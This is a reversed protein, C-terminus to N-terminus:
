FEEVQFSNRRRRLFSSSIFKSEQSFFLFREERKRDSRSILLFTDRDKKEKLSFNHCM